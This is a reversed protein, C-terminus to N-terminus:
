GNMMYPVTIDCVCEMDGFQNSTHLVNASIVSSIFFSENGIHGFVKMIIGKPVEFYTRKASHSIGKYIALGMGFM